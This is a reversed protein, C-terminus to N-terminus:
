EFPVEEPDLMGWLGGFDAYQKLVTNVAKTEESNLLATPKHLMIVDSDTMLVRVISLIQRAGVPLNCSLQTGLYTLAAGECCGLAAGQGAELCAPAWLPVSDAHNPRLPVNPHAPTRRSIAVTM